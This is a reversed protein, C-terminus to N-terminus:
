GVAESRERGGFEDAYRNNAFCTGFGLSNKEGIGYPMAVFAMRQSLEDDKFMVLIKRGAICGGKYRTICSNRGLVKIGCVPNHRVSEGTAANYKKNLNASISDAILDADSFDNWLGTVVVPSVTKVALRKASTRYRYTRDYDIEQCYFFDNDQLLLCEKMRESLSDGYCRVVLHFLDGTNIPLPERVYFCYGKYGKGGHLRRTEDTGGMCFNIGRSIKEYYNGNELRSKCAAVFRMEHYLM